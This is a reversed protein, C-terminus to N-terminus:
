QLGWSDFAFSLLSQFPEHTAIVNSPRPAWLQGLHAFICILTGSSGHWPGSELWGLSGVWPLPPRHRVALGPTIFQSTLHSIPTSPLGDSFGDAWRTRHWLFWSHGASARDCRHLARGQTRCLPPQPGAVSGRGVETRVQSLLCWGWSRRVHSNPPHFSVTHAFPESWGRHRSRQQVAVKSGLSQVGARSM